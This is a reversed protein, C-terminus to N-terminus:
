PGRAVMSAFFDDLTPGAAEIQIVGFKSLDRVLSPMADTEVTVTLLGAGNVLAGYHEVAFQVGRPDSLRVSLTSRIKLQSLLSNPEGYAVLTGNMVFAAKDAMRMAEFMNHTTLLVTKGSKAVLARLTESSVPDLGMTFEDLILFRPDHLLARALSIKMKTGTSYSEIYEHLVDDIGVAVAVERIRETPHQIGYVKAFFELYAYGRMRYYVLTPGLVIGTLRSSSYVNGTIDLGDLFAHGSTPKTIGGAIKCITSKGAGNPGLLALTEGKPISFSVGRLARVQRRKPRLIGGENLAYTKSVEEFRLM